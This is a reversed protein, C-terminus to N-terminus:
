AHPTVALLWLWVSARTGYSAERWTMPGHARWGSRAQTIAGAAQDLSHDLDFGVLLVGVAAAAGKQLSRVKDFDDFARHLHPNYSPNPKARPGDPAMWFNVAWAGKVEVYVWGFEPAWVTLDCSQSSAPYRVEAVTGPFNAQLLEALRQSWSPECTRRSGTLARHHEHYQRLGSPWEHGDAQFRTTAEQDMAQLGEGMRKFLITGLPGLPDERSPEM